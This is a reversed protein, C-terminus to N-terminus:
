KKILTKAPLIFENNFEKTMFTKVYDFVQNDNVKNYRACAYALLLKVYANEKSTNMIFPIGSLIMDNTTSYIDRDESGYIPGAFLDPGSM